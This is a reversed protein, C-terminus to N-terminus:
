RCVNDVELARETEAADKILADRKGGEDMCQAAVIGLAQTLGSIRGLRACITTRSDGERRTARIQNMQKNIATVVDDCEDAHAPPSVSAWVAVIAISLLTTQKM